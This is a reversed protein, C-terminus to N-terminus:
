KRTLELLKSALVRVEKKSLPRDYGSLFIEFTDKTVEKKGWGSGVIDGPEYKRITAFRWSYDKKSDARLVFEKM